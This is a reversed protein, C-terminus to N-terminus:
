EFYVQVTVLSKKTKAEMLYNYALSPVTRQGYLFMKGAVWLTNELEGHQFLRATM